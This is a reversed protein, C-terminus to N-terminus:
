GISISWKHQITGYGSEEVLVIQEPEIQANVPLEIVVKKDDPFGIDSHQGRDAKTYPSLEKGLVKINLTTFRNRIAIRKKEPTYQVLIGVTGKESKAFPEFFSRTIKNLGPRIVMFNQEETLVPLASFGNIGGHPLLLKESASVTKKLRALIVRDTTRNCFPCIHKPNYPYDKACGKHDCKIIKKMSQICASKFEDLTPRTSMDMKGIVFIRNFLIALDDPMFLQTDEFIENKNKSSQEDGIYDLTGCKLREYFEQSSLQEAEEGWFPHCTTILEFLMVAFSYTDSASSPSARHTCVLPDGYLPKGTTRAHYTYSSISDAGVFQIIPQTPKDATFIQLTTNSPCVDVLCLGKSHIQQLRSAISYAIKLRYEIGGTKEYYWKFLKDGKGPKIYYDLSCEGLPEFVYGIEDRKLGALIASPMAIADALVDDKCGLKKLWEIRDAMVKTDDLSHFIKLLKKNDTKLCVSQREFAFEEVAKYRQRQTDFFNRNLYTHKPM